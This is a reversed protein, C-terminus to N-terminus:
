LPKQVALCCGYSGLFDSKRRQGEGSPLHFCSSGTAMKYIAQSPGSALYGSELPGEM